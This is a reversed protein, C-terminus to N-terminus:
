EDWCINGACRTPCRLGCRGCNARDSAINVCTGDCMTMGSVCVALCTGDRCAENGDCARGCAGCNAHDDSVRQCGHGCDAYGTACDVGCRGGRCVAEGHEDAPCAEGCRGCHAPDFLVAVCAGGCRMELAGCAAPVDASAEAVPPADERALPVDATGADTATAVDSAVPVRDTLWVVGDDVVTVDAGAGDVTLVTGSDASAEVPADTAGDPPPFDDGIRSWPVCGITLLLALSATRTTMANM